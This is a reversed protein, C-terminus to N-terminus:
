RWSEDAVGWQGTPVIDNFDDMEWSESPEPLGLDDEVRFGITDDDRDFDFM